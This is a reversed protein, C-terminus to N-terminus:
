SVLQRFRSFLEVPATLHAGFASPLAANRPRGSGQFPRAGEAVGLAAPM